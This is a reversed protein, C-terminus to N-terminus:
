WARAATTASRTAGHARRAARGACSFARAAGRLPWFGAGAGALRGDEPAAAHNPHDDRGRDFRPAIFVWSIWSSGSGATLGGAGGGWAGRGLRAGLPVHGM